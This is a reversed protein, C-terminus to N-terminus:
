STCIWCTSGLVLTLTVSVLIILASNMQHMESASNKLTVIDLHVCLFPVLLDSQSKKHM